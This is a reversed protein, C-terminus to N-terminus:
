HTTKVPETKSVTQHKNVPIEQLNAHAIWQWKDDIKKWVSLRPTPKESLLQNEIKEKVSILYTVVITDGNETVRVKSLEYSGLHLDKILDIEDDRNLTGFTHVSQFQKAINEEIQKHNLHKMDEWMQTELKEGLSMESFLPMTVVTLAGLTFAIFKLM